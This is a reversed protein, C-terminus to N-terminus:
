CRLYPTGLRDECVIKSLVPYLTEPWLVVDSRTLGAKALHDAARNAERWSHSIEWKEFGRLSGKIRWCSQQIQWPTAHKGLLSDVVIQSDSEIWIRPFNLKLAIQIGLLIAEAEIAMINKEKSPQHYYALVVGQDNRLIGGLGGGQTSLSGDSNLKVSGSAPCRWRCIQQTSENRSGEEFSIWFDLTRSGWQEETLDGRFDQGYRWGM